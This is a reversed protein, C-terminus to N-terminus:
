VAGFEHHRMKLSKGIIVAVVEKMNGMHYVPSMPKTKCYQIEQMNYYMLCKAFCLETAVVWFTCLVCKHNITSM